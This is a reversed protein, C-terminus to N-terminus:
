VHPFELGAPIEFGAYKPPVVRQRSSSLSPQNSPVPVTETRPPTPFSEGDETKLVGMWGVSTGINEGTTVISDSSRGHVFSVFPLTGPGKM